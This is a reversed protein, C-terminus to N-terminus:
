NNTKRKYCFSCTISHDEYKALRFYAPVQTTRSKGVRQSASVYELEAECGKEVVIYQIRDELFTPLEFITVQNRNSDYGFPIKVGSM